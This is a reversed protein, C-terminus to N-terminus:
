ALTVSWAKLSAAAKTQFLLGGSMMANGHSGTKMLENSTQSIVILRNDKTTLHEPLKKLSCLVMM